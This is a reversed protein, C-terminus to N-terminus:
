VGLTEHAERVVTEIDVASEGGERREAWLWFEINGQPGTIPSVGMGRVTMGADRFGATVNALVERHLAADRVVGKKGVRGKGAEFQPKVLALLTGDRALLERVHPLVVLLGIFSVDVVAVDFPAGLAAADVSRINTREFVSVREDTRLSWALQGYGVDVATVSAAGRQLLCDTFGGTSAGVDVARVGIVDLGFVDLAGALKLGGRSVFRPAEAVEILADEAVQQGPKTAPVGGVRVKGALVAGRASERSAFLRRSVLTIDLRQRAM